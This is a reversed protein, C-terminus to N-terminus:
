EDMCRKKEDYWIILVNIVVLVFLGFVIGPINYTTYSNEVAGGIYYDTCLGQILLVGIVNVILQVISM